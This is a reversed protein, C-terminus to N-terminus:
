FHFGPAANAESVRRQHFYPLYLSLCSKFCLMWVDRKAESTQTHTTNLTEACFPIEFDDVTTQCVTGDAAESVDRSCPSNWSSWRSLVQKLKEKQKHTLSTITSNSTRRCFVKSEFSWRKSYNQNFAFFFFIFGILCRQFSLASCSFM